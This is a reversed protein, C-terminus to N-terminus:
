TPTEKYYFQLGSSQLQILFSVSVFTNQKFVGRTAAETTQLNRNGYCFKGTCNILIM